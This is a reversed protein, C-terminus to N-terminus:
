FDTQNNILIYKDGLEKHITEFLDKAAHNFRDYDEQNGSDSGLLSIWDLFEDHWKCLDHIRQITIDSLPLKNLDIPSGLAEFSDPDNVWLCSPINRDFFFRLTLRDDM